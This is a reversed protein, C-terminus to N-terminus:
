PGQESDTAAHVSRMLQEASPSIEVPFKTRLEALRAGVAARARLKWAEDTFAVRRADLPMRQEPLQELLRIVHWGFETEVVESTQGPKGLKFAATVFAQVMRGPGEVVYGDDVFTPLAEVVVELDKPHAVAKAAAKFADANSASLVAERLSDALARARTLQEPTANPPRKALAHIVRISPPRDVERWHAESLKRVEEDTPAGAAKAETLLHQTTLRARVARLMWSAPQQLDLRRSRAADAAIADDVLRRLAENPAVGQEKAVQAVLSLPVSEGGVRAAIEGGLAAGESSPPATRTSGCSLSPMATLTLATLALIARSSRSPSFGRSM